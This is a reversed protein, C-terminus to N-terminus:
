VSFAVAPAPAAIVAAFTASLVSSTALATFLNSLAM